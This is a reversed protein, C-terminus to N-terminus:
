FGDPSKGMVLGSLKRNSTRGKVWRAQPCSLCKLDLGSYGGQLSHFRKRLDAPFAESTQVPVTENAETGADLIPSTDLLVENLM